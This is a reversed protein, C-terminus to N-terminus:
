CYFLWQCLPNTSLPSELLPRAGGINETPSQGDGSGPALGHSPNTGLDLLMQQAVAACSSVLEASISGIEEEAPAEWAAVAAIQVM